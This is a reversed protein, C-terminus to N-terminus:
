TTYLQFEKIHNKLQFDINYTLLSKPFISLTESWELSFQKKLIDRFTLIYLRM